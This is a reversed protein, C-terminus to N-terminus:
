KEGDRKVQGRQEVDHIMEQLDTAPLNASSIRRFLKVALPQQRAFKEAQEGFRGAQAMLDDADLSLLGALRGLVEEAPVRRDNEIDSLYSPTIDMQGAIARLSLSKAARAERLIEGLSRKPEM